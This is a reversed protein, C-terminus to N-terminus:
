NDTRLDIVENESTEFILKNGELKEAIKGNRFVNVKQKEWPNLITCPNGKESRIKVGTVVGSRRTASILFAGWSRINQFQADGSFGPFLRIVNGVSMCLMENVANTVTCSNEIGHPNGKQFGNPYTNQSYKRLEGTIKEPSYGVRIAAMFFSNSTNSDHWRQMEDITNRAVALLEPNSELTIANGPYIHQIGLGNGDWWDVGEETYRFVQKGRRQQVPFDSLRALMDNWTERKQDDKQLTISLDIMLDLANRLLGLTLIPNKNAGSGEHIADGYIVYRNNELKLFDEWFSVVALAYPYIKEGYAQDCTCRWLQAMNVLGYLANSRQGFFLGGQEIDGHKKYGENPFNRTVEIGLPGIGVPYLIGPARTVERAYWEGRPMFDILPADHTVAQELHNASALAYFPAQFNYNLHYDGNWGPQDNTTWGFLGPPFQQDRSCAGMTYLGQYWAKELVTDSLSVSSKAWYDQWWYKHEKMLKNIKTASSLIALRQQVGTLPNESKFRSEMAVLVGYEEGENLAVKVRGIPKFALAVRTSIDVDDAFSRTLWSNPADGKEIRAMKNEPSTLQCQFDIKGKKARIQIVMVNGTAAVWSTIEARRIGNKLIVTTKGDNLSQSALFDNGSFGNLSIDFCGALRPGSLGDGQSKLRWFDNKSLYYRLIQGDFGLCAMMDGNGMLPADVSYGSPVRGPQAAWYNKYAPITVRSNAFTIASLGVLCLIIILVSFYIFRNM